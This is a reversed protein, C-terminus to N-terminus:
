NISYFKHDGIIIAHQNRSWAPAVAATAFHDAHPVLLHREDVPLGWNEISKGAIDWAKQFAVLNDVEQGPSTTSLAFQHPAKVVKCVTDGWQGRERRRMAVEAVAMQGVTSQSRAELYVTTALCTQDALPQPLVSMLWLLMSLKM